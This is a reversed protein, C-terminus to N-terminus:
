RGVAAVLGAVVMEAAPRVPVLQDLGSHQLSRLVENRETSVHLQTGAAAARRHLAWLLHLFRGCPTDVDQLDIVVHPARGLQQGVRRALAPGTVEDVAGSVRVVVVDPIPVHLRVDLTSVDTM